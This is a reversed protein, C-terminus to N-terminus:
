TPQSAPLSATATSKITTAHRHNVLINFGSGKGGNLYILIHLVKKFKSYKGTRVPVATPGYSCLLFKM